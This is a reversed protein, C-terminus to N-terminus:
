GVGMMLLAAGVASPPPPSGAPNFAQMIGCLLGRGTIRFHQFKGVIQHARCNVGHQHRDHGVRVDVPDPVRHDDTLRTAAATTQITPRMSHM